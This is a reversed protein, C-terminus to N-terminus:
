SCCRDRFLFQDGERFQMDWLKSYRTYNQYQPSYDADALVFFQKVNYMPANLNYDSVYLRDAALAYQMFREHFWDPMYSTRLLYKRVWEDRVKNIIGTQYKIYDRKADASMYNFMGYFRISDYWYIPNSATVVEGQVTPCCFSWSSGQYENDSNGFHGGCFVAEFKVSKDTTVCDWEELCFIPSQMCYTNGAPATGQVSFRYSGTGSTQIVKQWSITFGQPNVGHCTGACNTGGIGDMLAPIAIPASLSTAPCTKFCYGGSLNNNYPQGFTTNELSALNFWEDIGGSFTRPSNTCILTGTNTTFTAVVGNWSTGGPGYIFLDHGGGSTDNVANLFGGTLIPIQETMYIIAPNIAGTPIGTILVSPYGNSFSVTASATVVPTTSFSFIAEPPVGFKELKFDGNIIADYNLWYSFIFSNFDNHYGDDCDFSGFVPLIMNREDNYPADPGYTGYRCDWGKTNCVGSCPFVPVLGVAQIPAQVAQAYNVASAASPYPAIPPDQSFLGHLVPM